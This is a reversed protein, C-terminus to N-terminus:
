EATGPFGTTYRIKIIRGSNGYYFGSEVIMHERARQSLSCIGELDDINFLHVNSVEAAEPAVDRPVAIDVILMSRDMRHLM